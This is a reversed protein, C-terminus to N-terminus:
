ARISRPWRTRSSSRCTAPAAAADREHELPTCTRAWGCWAAAADRAAPAPRRPRAHVQRLRIRGGHGADRRAESRLQRRRGGEVATPRAFLGSGRSRSIDGEPGPGLAAARRTPLREVDCRRLHCAKARGEASDACRRCDRRRLARLRLRLPRPLRLRAAPAAPQAAPRAITQLREARQEDLRPMSRLLGATYPHQPRLVTPRVRGARSSRARCVDGDRPRRPRRHRRSRPHHARDGHRLRPQLEGLLELIQAQVTVDLATTPEDAILLEPQCLLAMAIM